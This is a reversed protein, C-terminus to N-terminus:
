LALFDFTEIQVSVEVSHVDGTILEAGKYLLPVGKNLSKDLCLGIIAVKDTQEGDGEGAAVLVLHLGGAVGFTGLLFEEALLNHFDKLGFDCLVGELVKELLQESVLDVFLDGFVARLDEGELVYQDSLGLNKFLGLEIKGLKHFKVLVLGFSGLRNFDGGLSL